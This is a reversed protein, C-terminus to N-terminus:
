ALFGASKDGDTPRVPQAKEPVLQSKTVPMAQMEPTLWRTRKAIAGDFLTASILHTLTHSAKGSAQTHMWAPIIM